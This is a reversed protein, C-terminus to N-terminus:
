RMEAYASPTTIPAGTIAAKAARSGRLCSSIARIATKASPLRAEASAAVKPLRISARNM